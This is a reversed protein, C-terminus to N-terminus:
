CIPRIREVLDRLQTFSIPKILVLDSDELMQEALRPNATAIIIKTESLREESRIYQLIHDGTVRPLNLDLVVVCPIQEALFDLANQGDLAAKVEYGAMKMAHSFIESQQPDDEIVLALPLETM